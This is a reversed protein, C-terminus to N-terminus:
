AAEACVAKKANEYDKGYHNKFEWSTAEKARAEVDAMDIEPINVLECNRAWVWVVDRHNKYVKGNKAAFDVMVDSTAIAFKNEMNARYGMGYPRQIVVVVPGEVGKATRGSVVKVVSGKVMTRAENQARETYLEM